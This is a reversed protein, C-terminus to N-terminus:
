RAAGALVLRAGRWDQRRFDCGGQLREQKGAGNKSWQLLLGIPSAREQDFVVSPEQNKMTFLDAVPVAQHRETASKVKSEGRHLGPKRRKETTVRSISTSGLARTIRKEIRGAAYASGRSVPSMRRM